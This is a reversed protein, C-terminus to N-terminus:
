AEKVAQKSKLSWTPRDHNGGQLGTKQTEMLVLRETIGHYGPKLAEIIAEAYKRQNEHPRAHRDTSGHRFTKKRYKWSLKDGARM